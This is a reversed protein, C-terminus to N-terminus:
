MWAPDTWSSQIEACKDADYYQPWDEYCAAAAPVGEILVGGLLADFAAWAAPSPWAADGPLLKCARNARAKNRSSPSANGFPVLDAIISANNRLSALVSGTLQQTEYAFYPVGAASTNSSPLAEAAAVPLTTIAAEPTNALLGDSPCTHVRLRFFEGFIAAPALAFLAM